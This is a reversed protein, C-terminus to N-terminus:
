CASRALIPKRRRLSKRGKLAAGLAAPTEDSASRRRGPAAHCAARRADASQCASLPQDGRREALTRAEDLDGISLAAAALSGCREVDDM